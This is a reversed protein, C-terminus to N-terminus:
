GSPMFSGGSRYGSPYISNGSKIPATLLPSSALFPTNSASYSSALPGGTQIMDGRPREPELVMGGVRMMCDDCKPMVAKKYIQGGTRLGMRTKRVMGYGVFANGSNLEELKSNGYDYILEKANPYKGALAKEVIQKEAGSLHEDVYDDVLEIALMKADPGLSQVTKKISSSDIAKEGAKTAIKEFAIGAAPNGTYATLAEGGHKAAEKLLSKAGSKAMKKSIGVKSLKKYLGYGKRQAAENIYKGAIQGVMAGSVGSPDGLYMSAAGLAGPLVVDTAIDILDKAIEKGVGSDVIKRDFGRKVIGSTKKASDVAKKSMKDAATVGWTDRLEQPSKFKRDFITGKISALKGGEIVTLIDEHPMVALKYGKDKNFANMMKQSKERDIRIRHATDNPSHVMHRKINIAGGKRLKTMQRKSVSIGHDIYESM